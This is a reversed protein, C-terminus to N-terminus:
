QYLHLILNIGMNLRIEADGPMLEAAKGFAPLADRGQMQLTAGLLKWLIAADPYQRILRQAQNEVEAFRQENYLAILAKVEAPPAQRAPEPIKQNM